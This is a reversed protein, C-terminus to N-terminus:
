VAPITIVSYNDDLLTFDEGQKKDTIILKENGDDFVIFIGWLSFAKSNKIKRVANYLESSEPNDGVFPCLCLATSLADLKIGDKGMLTVSCVGTNQPYGTAPNIIHSYREGQYVYFKEYDGSTSVSLNKEGVNVSIIYENQARPHTIKLSEVDLLYLSSGGVNVFGRIVGDKKMIEAIKDAAYGKVIGGLDLKAARDSKEAYYGGNEDTDFSFKNFGVHSLTQEVASADPPVFEKNDAKFNPAFQWLLTLPYVSPDFRGGTFANISRCEQFVTFFTESIKIRANEEAANIAYVASQEEQASFKSHLNNLTESIEARANESLAKGHSQVTVPSNFAAFHYEYRKTACGFSLVLPSLIATFLIVTVATLLTKRLPKGFFKM